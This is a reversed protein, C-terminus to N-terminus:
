VYVCVCILCVCVCNWMICTGICLLYVFYIHTGNYMWLMFACMVGFWDYRHGDYWMCLRGIGFRLSRYVHVVCSVCRNLICLAIHVLVYAIWGCTHM